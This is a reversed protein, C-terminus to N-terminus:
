KDGHTPLKHCEFRRSELALKEEWFRQFWTLGGEFMSSTATVRFLGSQEVLALKAEFYDPQDTVFHFPGDAVLIRHIACLMATPLPDEQARNPQIIPPPFLMYVERASEDPVKVLARRFDTRIFKINQLGARQAKNIADWLSKWHLDFGLFHDDPREHALSILFDGRGCGLDIIVPQDDGFLALPTIPPLDDLRFHLDKLDYVLLYDALVDPPPQPAKFRTLKLRSM